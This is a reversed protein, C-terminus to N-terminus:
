IQFLHSYGTGTGLDAIRCNTGTLPVSPHTLYGLGDKWLYHQLNLRISSYMDRGLVYAPQNDM